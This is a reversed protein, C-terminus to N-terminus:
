FKKLLDEVKLLLMETRRMKEKEEKYAKNEFFKEVEEKKTHVYYRYNNFEELLKDRFTEIRCELEDLIKHKKDKIIAEVESGTLTPEKIFKLIKQLIPIKKMKMEEIEEEKVLCSDILGEIAVKFVKREELEFGRLKGIVMVKELKNFEEVLESPSEKEVKKFGEEFREKLKGEEANFFKEIIKELYKILSNNIEECAEEIRYDSKRSIKGGGNIRNREEEIFNKVKKMQEEIVEEIVSNKERDFYWEVKHLKDIYKKKEEEIEDRRRAIRNRIHILTDEKEGNRGSVFYLNERKLRELSRWVNDEHIRRRNKVVFNFLEREFELFASKNILEIKKYDFGDEAMGLNVRFYEVDEKIRQKLLRKTEKISAEDVGSLDKMEKYDKRWCKLSFENHVLFVPPNNLNKYLEEILSIGSENLPSVTSQLLLMLDVREVLWDIDLDEKGEKRVGGAGATIGDLGPTDVLLIGEKLLNYEGKLERRAIQVNIFIPSRRGAVSEKTLWDRARLINDEEIELGEKDILEKEDVIGKIYDIIAHFLNKKHNKDKPRGYFLLVRSTEGASFICPRVTTERGLRTPSVERHCLLNILTSKGSKLGGCIIVVFSDTELEKKIRKINNLLSLLKDAGFYNNRIEKESPLERLFKDIMGVIQASQLSFSERNMRIEGSKM